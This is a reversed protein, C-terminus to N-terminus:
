HALPIKNPFSCKVTLDNYMPSETYGYFRPLQM